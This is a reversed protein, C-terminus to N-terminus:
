PFVVEVNNLMILIMSLSFMTWALTTFVSTAGKGIRLPYALLGLVLEVIGWVYPPYGWLTTPALVEVDVVPPDTATVTVKAIGSGFFALLYYITSLVFFAALLGWLVARASM